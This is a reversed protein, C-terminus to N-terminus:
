ENYCVDSIKLEQYNINVLQANISKYTINKFAIDDLKSNNCKLNMLIDFYKEKVLYKDDGLTELYASNNQYLINGNNNIIIVDGEGDQSGKNTTLYIFINKNNEKIVGINFDTIEKNLNTKIISNNIMINDITYTNNNNKRVNIDMTINNNNLEFNDMGITFHGNNNTFNKDIDDNITKIKDVQKVEINNFENKKPSHKMLEYSIIISLIVIIIIILNIKKESM